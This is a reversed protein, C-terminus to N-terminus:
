PTNQKTSKIWGGLMRGIESLITELEIYDKNQMALSDKSLRLLIKLLDIKVSIRQLILIKSSSIPIAFLLELIDL